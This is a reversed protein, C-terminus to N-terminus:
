SMSVSFFDRVYKKGSEAENGVKEVKERAAYHSPSHPSHYQRQWKKKRLPPNKVSKGQKAHPGVWVLCDEM